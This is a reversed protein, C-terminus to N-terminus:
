HPKALIESIWMGSLNDPGAAQAVIAVDAGRSSGGIGIVRDGSEIHGVAVAQMIVEVAVKMGQGFCRLSNPSHGEIDKIYRAVPEDPMFTVGLAEAKERIEGDLKSSNQFNVGYVCAGAPVAEVITLAAHGSTTAVVIASIDGDELRKAVIGAVEATNEKGRNIFYSTKRSISEAM